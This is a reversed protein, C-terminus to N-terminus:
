GCQGRDWVGGLLNPCKEKRKGKNVCRRLSVTQFNQIAGM